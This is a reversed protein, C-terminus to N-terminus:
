QVRFADKIWTIEHQNQKEKSPSIGVVDFRCFASNYLKNQLLFFTAARIIRSQKFSDVMEVANGHTQKSRLKVEIFVWVNKDRMILDIEGGKVRFNRSIFKLGQKQLFVCADQEALAGISVTSPTTNKSRESM